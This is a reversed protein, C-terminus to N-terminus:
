LELEYGAQRSRAAKENRLPQSRVKLWARAWERAEEGDVQRDSPSQTPRSEVELPAVRDTRREQALPIEREPNRGLRYELWERAREIKPDLWRAVRAFWPVMAPTEGRRRMQPEVEEPKLLGCHVDWRPLWLLKRYMGHEPSAGAERERRMRRAREQRAEHQLKKFVGIERKKQAAQSREEPTLRTKRRDERQQRRLDFGERMLRRHYEWTSEGQGYERYLTDYVQRPLGADRIAQQLLGEWLARVADYEQAGSGALGRAARMQDSVEGDTKALLGRPGVRRTTGLLHAHFHRARGERRDHLAVDIANGYRDALTQAFRYVVERRQPPTMQQPLIMMYDRAVRSDHRDEAFEATNWLAYPDKAWEFAPDTVAAQPLVIGSDRVDERWGWKYYEGTRENWLDRGGRYAACYVADGGRSGRTISRIRM